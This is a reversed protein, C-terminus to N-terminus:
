QVLQLLIDKAVRTFLSNLEDPNNTGAYSGKRDQFNEQGYTKHEDYGVWVPQTIRPDNPDNITVQRHKGFSPDSNALAHFDDYAIRRLFYEKRTFDNVPNQYPDTNPVPPPGATAAFSQPGLGITYVVGGKRRIYDSAEIACDYFKQTYWYSSNTFGVQNAYDLAQDVQSDAAAVPLATSPDPNSGDDGVWSSTDGSGFFTPYFRFSQLCKKTADGGDDFISNYQSITSVTPPTATPDFNGCWALAPGTPIGGSFGAPLSPRSFIPTPGLWRNPPTATDRWELVYMLWDNAISPAASTRKTYLTTAPSSTNGDVFAFRGASPAGDTFLLTFFPESGVISSGSPLTAAKLDAYGTWLEDCPNTNGAPTVNDITQEFSDIIPSTEGYKRATNGADNNHISFDVNGLTEFPTISVRDKNPNFFSMFNFTADKLSYIKRLNETIGPDSCDPNVTDTRCACPKTPDPDTNPCNMSGSRDLSLLINAARIQAQARATVPCTGTGSCDHLIPLHGMFFLPVNYTISVTITDTNIDFVPPPITCDAPNIGRLALNTRAIELARDKLLDVRTPCVGNCSSIAKLATRNASAMGPNPLTRDYGQFWAWGQLARYGLGATAALDAANQLQIKRLFLNGADIALAAVALLGILVVAFVPIYVGDESHRHAILEENCCRPQMTTGM